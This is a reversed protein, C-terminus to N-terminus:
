VLDAIRCNPFQEVRRALYKFVLEDGNTGRELLQLAVLDNSPVGTGIENMSPQASSRRTAIGGQDDVPHTPLGTRYDRRGTRGWRRRRRRLVRRVRWM